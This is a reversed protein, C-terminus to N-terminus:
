LKIVTYNLQKKTRFRNRNDKIIKEEEPKPNEMM